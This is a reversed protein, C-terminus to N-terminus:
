FEVFECCESKECQTFNILLAKPIGTLTIYNKTQAKMAYNITKVAKLEVIIEKEIILDARLNGITHEEFLIPVIRETEYNIGNKRLLVEMANHYVCESYGTGLSTYVHNALEKLKEM